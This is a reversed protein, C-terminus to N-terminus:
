NFCCIFFSNESDCRCDWTINSHSLVSYCHIVPQRDRVRHKLNLPVGSSGSSDSLCCTVFSIAIFLVARHPFTGFFFFVGLGLYTGLILPFAPILVPGLWPCFLLTCCASAILRSPRNHDSCHDVICIEKRREGITWLEEEERALSIFTVPIEHHVKMQSAPTQHVVGCPGVIWCGIGTTRKIKACSVFFRCSGNGMRSFPSPLIDYVSFSARSSGWKTNRTPPEAAPWPPGCTMDHRLISSNWLQQRGIGCWWKGRPTIM